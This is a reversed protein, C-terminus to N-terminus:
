VFQPTEKVPLCYWMTRKGEHFLGRLYGNIDPMEIPMPNMSNLLWWTELDRRLIIWETAILLLVANYQNADKLPQYWELQINECEKLFLHAYDVSFNGTEDYLDHLGLVDAASGLEGALAEKMKAGRDLLGEETYKDYGVLCNVTNKFCM